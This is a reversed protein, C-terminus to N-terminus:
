PEPDTSARSTRRSRAAQRQARARRANALAQPSQLYEIWATAERLARRALEDHQQRVTEPIHGRDVADRLHNQVEILSARAMTVFRANDVPNFRGFGEAIQSAASAAAERLQARLPFDMALPPQECLRYVALKFARAAQWARLDEFRRIGNGV